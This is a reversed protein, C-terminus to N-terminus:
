DEVSVRPLNTEWFHLKSIQPAPNKCGPAGKTAWGIADFCQRFFYFLFM